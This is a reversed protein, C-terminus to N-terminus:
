VSNVDIRILCVLAMTELSSPSGTFFLTSTSGALRGSMTVARQSEHQYNIYELLTFYNNEDSVVM